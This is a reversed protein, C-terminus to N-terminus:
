TYPFMGWLNFVLPVEETKLPFNILKTREEPSSKKVVKSPDNLAKEIESAELLADPAGNARLTAIATEPDFLKYELVVKAFEQVGFDNFAEAFADIEPFIKIGRRDLEEIRATVSAARDGAKTLEEIREKLPAPDLWQARDFLFIVDEKDDSVSDFVELDRATPLAFGKERWAMFEERTTHLKTERPETTKVTHKGQVGYRSHWTINYPTNQYSNLKHWILLAKFDNFVLDRADRNSTSSLVDLLLSTNKTRTARAIKAHDLVGFHKVSLDNWEYPIFDSPVDVREWESSLVTGEADTQIHEVRTSPNTPVTSHVLPKGGKFATPQIAVPNALPMAGPNIKRPTPAVGPIRNPPLHNDVM